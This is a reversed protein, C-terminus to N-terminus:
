SAHNAGRNYQPPSRRAGDHAANASFLRAADPGPFRQLFPTRHRLQLETVDVPRAVLREEALRDSLEEIGGACFPRRPRREDHAVLLHSHAVALQPRGDVLEGGPQQREAQMGAVADADPRGVVAFPHERLERGCLGPEDEDVDIGGIADGLEFVREVFDAALREDEGLAELGRVIDAHQALKDGSSPSAVGPWSSAARRGDSREITIRPSPRCGPLKRKESIRARPPAASACRM